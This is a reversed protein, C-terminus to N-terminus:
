SVADNTLDCRRVQVQQLVSEQRAVSASVQQRLPGYIQNLKDNSLQEENLLESEALARLFTSGLFCITNFLQEVIRDDNGMDFSVDRIDKELKERELKIAQVQAM